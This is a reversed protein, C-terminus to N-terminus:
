RCSRRRRAPNGGSDALCVGFLKQAGHPFFLFGAMIRLLNLAPAQFKSLTQTIM